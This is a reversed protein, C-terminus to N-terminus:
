LSECPVVTFFFAESANQGFSDRVTVVLTHPDTGFRDIDAIVPFSCPEPDGDDFACSISVPENTSNCCFEHRGPM